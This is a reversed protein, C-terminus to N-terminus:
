IGKLSNQIKLKNEDKTKRYNNKTKNFCHTVPNKYRYEVITPSYAKHNLVHSLPKFNPVCIAIENRENLKMISSNMGIDLPLSACLGISEWLKRRFASMQQTNVSCFLISSSSNNTGADKHPSWNRLSSLPFYYIMHHDFVLTTM